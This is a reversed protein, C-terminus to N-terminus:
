QGVPGLYRDLWDLVARTMLPRQETVDHPTDLLVHKKDAAPTGLMAFLPDQAQDESFVYDYRGNVMLVPKKLRPAFDAQDGGPPPTDLFFGGDLLIVAKLRDQLLEGTIVGQAAGMSVGLYALRSSDIDHRTALYDLSRAADKYWDTTMQIAQGGGPLFYKLNREYTGDYIPYLVARGSQLIYDFFKLDGLERGNGSDTFDLVRASPFFLVTQYPPKVNKPLFLYASMQEGRYGTDYSVKEERWDATERVIGQSSANLPTNPYAYLLEYAHFVADPAPKFRTFDRTLRQVTAAAKAPVPGLNRVCRFGNTDSRDFPSAAEPNSYLYGPSKWSGGLIFRLDNETANATWERVNGATDLTGYPGLGKYTGVAALANSAINSVPVIYGTVDSPALVFWQSVVPLSKGAFAAYASAEFWSVGSVPFDGKGEPFHGGVWTSPGPRDTTDRFLAIGQSWPIDRGGGTFQRPWYKANQYGGSDVFKQYDRNTVELRDADFAPLVFPGDWGVFAVFDQWTQAPVYVMGAPAALNKQLDFDMASGTEPATVMAGTGAKSVKWRYYGDPVRMNKLPTVGLTQWPADPTLYDQIAVTAGPPQSNIAVTVVKKALEELQPDNPLAKRAKELLDFAALPKNEGFLTNIRPLAVERAWRRQSAHHYIWGGAAIAVVLAAAIAVFAARGPGKAAATKPDLSALLESADHAMAAASPYRQERDKALARSVIQEAAAPADPRLQRLPKPEQEVIVRMVALGNAAQFPNAGTLLAYYIVGLSWLDTRADVEKGQVQEPSMFLPTGVIGRTEPSYTSDAAQAQLLKALGFDLVKVGGKPTLMVNGPKLDRHVVGREHAEELAQAIHLLLQTADKVPMPGARLKEALSVGPVYEMVIFDAGDQEDADYVAAIHAHSVKALALAEQRFRRRADENALMGPALLKIAVTRELKEDRARYVAGMGGAGLPGEITYRGLRSGATPASSIPGPSAGAQAPGVTEASSNASRQHESLLEEILRRSEPHGVCADDLFAARKEPPLSLAAGFLRSVSPAQKAM